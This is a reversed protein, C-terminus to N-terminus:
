DHRTDTQASNLATVRRIAFEDMIKQEERMGLRQHVAHQKERYIDVMERQQRAALMAHCAANVQREAQGLAALCEDRKKELLAHFSQAQSAHAATCGAGLLERMQAFDRGICQDMNELLELVQQRSLLARSYNELAEQEQRQRLTRVAELSFRFSKM